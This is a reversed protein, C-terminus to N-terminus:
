PTVKSWVDRFHHDKTERNEPPLTWLAAAAVFSTAVILFAWARRPFPDTM